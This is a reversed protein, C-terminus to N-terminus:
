NFLGFGMDDDDPDYGLDHAFGHEFSAGHLFEITRRHEQELEIPSKDLIAAM